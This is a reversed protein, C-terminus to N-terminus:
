RRSKEGSKGNAGNKKQGVGNGPRPGISKGLSDLLLVTLPLGSGEQESSMGSDVTEAIAFDVLGPSANQTTASVGGRRPASAYSGAWTIVPAPQTKAKLHGIGAGGGPLDNGQEGQRPDRGQGELPADKEPGGNLIANGPGGRGLRASRAGGDTVVPKTIREDVIVHDDGAGTLIVIFDFDTTKFSRPRGDDSLFDAKVEIFEGGKGDIAVEVADDGGTGVIQLVRDNIGAGTIQAKTTRTAVVGGATTISLTIDYIGGAEYAHDGALTWGGNAEALTAGEVTGDGWTVTASRIGPTEAGAFVGAFSTTQRERAGGVRSATSTLSVFMPFTSTEVGDMGQEGDDTDELHGRYREL